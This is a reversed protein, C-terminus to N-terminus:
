FVLRVLIKQVYKRIYLVHRTFIMNSLISNLDENYCVCVVLTNKTHADRTEDRAKKAYDM